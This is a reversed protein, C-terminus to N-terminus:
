IDTPKGELLQSLKLGADALRHVDAPSLPPTPPPTNPPQTAAQQELHDLVRNWMLMAKAATRWMGDAVLLKERANKEAAELVIERERRDEYADWAGARARWGWRVSWQECVRNYGPKKGLVKTTKASSRESGLGRYIAFAAFAKDTEKPQRGWPDIDPAPEFEVASHKGSGRGGM